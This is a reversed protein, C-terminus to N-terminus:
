KSRLVTSSPDCGGQAQSSTTAVSSEQRSGADGDCAGARGSVWPRLGTAQPVLRHRQGQGHLVGVQPALSIPGKALAGDGWCAPDQASGFLRTRLAPREMHVRLLGIGGGQPVKTGLTDQPGLLLLVWRQWLVPVLPAAPVRRLASVPFM